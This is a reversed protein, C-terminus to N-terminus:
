ASARARAHAADVGYIDEYFELTGDPRAGATFYVLFVPVKRELPIEQTQGSAIATRLRESSWQSGRLLYEALEVPREVRICGHSASRDPERFLHDAPTDHLYINHPNPFMFKIQGLPNKAGPRQRVRAGGGEAAAFVMSDSVREAGDTEGSVVEMDNSALYFPNSRVQPLIEEALISQPVNWYPNVVLHEIQDAFMPTEWGEQGVVVAMSRVIRQGEEVDLTYGPINVVVASEGFDDPVWRWRELSLVIQQLRKEVPVNLEEQTQEGLSGDVDLTRTRQFRAVAEALAQSYPLRAPDAPAADGPASAPRAQADQGPAALEPPISPLFGEAQLRQALARLRAADGTEGPKLVPGKPVTPWGGRAAIERYRALGQLLAVFQPHDPDLRRLTEGIEGNGLSEALVAALDVPEREIEWRGGLAAPEVRGHRLQSAALLAAWTLGLELREAEGPAVEGAAIRKAAAELEPVRFDRSDLGAADLEALLALLDGAPRGLRGDEFWAPQNQRQAYLKRLAEGLERGEPDPLGFPPEQLGAVAPALDLEVRPTFLSIGGGIRDEEGRQRVMALAALALAAVLGLAAVIWLARRPLRAVINGQPSPDQTTM